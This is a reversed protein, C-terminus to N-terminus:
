MFYFIRSCKREVSGHAQAGVSVHLRVQIYVVPTNLQVNLGAALSEAVASYGEKLLVHPGEFGHELGDIDLGYRFSFLRKSKVLSSNWAGHRSILSSASLDRLPPHLYRLSLEDVDTNM